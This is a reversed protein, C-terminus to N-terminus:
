GRTMRRGWRIRMRRVEDENKNDEQIRTQIKVASSFIYTNM